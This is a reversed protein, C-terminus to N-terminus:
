EKLVLESGPDHFSVPAALLIRYDIIVQFRVKIRGKHGANFFLTWPPFFPFATAPANEEYFLILV